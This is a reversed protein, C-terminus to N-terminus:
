PTDALAKWARRLHRTLVGAYVEVGARSMSLSMASSPVVRVTVSCVAMRAIALPEITGLVPVVQMRLTLSTGKSLSSYSYLIPIAVSDGRGTSVKPVRSEGQM